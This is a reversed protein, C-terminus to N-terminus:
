FRGLPGTEAFYANSIHIHAGPSHLYSIRFTLNKSGQPETNRLSLQQLFKQNKYGTNSPLVEDVDRKVAIDQKAKVRKKSSRIGESHKHPNGKEPYGFCASYWRNEAVWYRDFGDM